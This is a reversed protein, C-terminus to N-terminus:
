GDMAAMAGAGEPLVQGGDVVITQGTVYNAADSAFYLAAGAIDAVVGLRRM